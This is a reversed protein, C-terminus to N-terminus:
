IGIGASFPSPFAFPGIVLKSLSLANFSSLPMLGSIASSFFPPFRGDAAGDFRPLLFFGRNLKVALPGTRLFRERWM